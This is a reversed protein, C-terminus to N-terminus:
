GCLWYIYTVHVTYICMKYVYKENLKNKAVIEEQVSLDISEARKPFGRGIEAALRELAAVESGSGSRPLDAIDRLLGEAATKADM